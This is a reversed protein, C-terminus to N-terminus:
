RGPMYDRSEMERKVRPNPGHIFLLTLQGKNMHGWKRIRHGKSCIAYTSVVETFINDKWTSNLAQVAPSFSCEGECVICCSAWYKGCPCSESAVQPSIIKDNWVKLNMGLLRSNWLWGWYEIKCKSMGVLSCLRTLLNCSWIDIDLIYFSFLNRHMVSSLFYFHWSHQFGM